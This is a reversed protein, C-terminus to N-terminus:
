AISDSRADIAARVCDAFARVGVKELVERRKEAIRAKFLGIGEPTMAAVEEIPTTKLDVFLDRPLGLRAPVSGHYLPIAGAILSDYLKESCYGEADTNEVIINFTYGSAIDVSSRPDRSRHLAHGVKVNAPLDEAEDWGVGFVDVGVGAAALRRVYEERLPDLCALETGDIVYAGRLQPRREAVICSRPTTELAPERLVGADRPFDLHHCNHPCFVTKLAPSALLPEWYTLAVDFHAALFDAAWQKQHRINPSELTYVVRHLDTRTRLFDLPLAAPDCLAALVTAGHPINPHNAYGDILNHTELLGRWLTPQWEDLAHCEDAFLKEFFGATAEPSFHFLYLDKKRAFDHRLKSNGQQFFSARVSRDTNGVRYDLSHKRVVAHPASGLLFKCVERDAEVADRRRAAHNWRPAVAIALDRPILYCSTDILYDGQGLITHCIGGLSECSDNCVFSGDSDVIRRLSYAWGDKGLPAAAKALDRLHAPHAANDDDLFAVHTADVLYPAAGYIRHGNWGDAGTNAPLELVVIPVAGDKFAHALKRINDINADPGDAVLWHVVNPLSQAQVSRVCSELHPGGMTATIVAVKVLDPYLLRHHLVLPDPHTFQTPDPRIPHKALALLISLISQDHRHDQFEPDQASSMADTILDPQTCLGLWVRLFELSEPAPRYCHLAANVQCADAIEPATAGMAELTERKTWRRNTLRKEAADGLRFFSMPADDLLNELPTQVITTSDMYVVPGKCEALTRLIIYPKWAWWGRGRARPDLHPHQDFLAQVTAPTHVVVRAAGGVHMASHRLLSAANEYEPSAFTVVTIGTM